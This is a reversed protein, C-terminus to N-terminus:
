KTDRPVFIWLLLYLILTVGSAFLGVVMIVRWIWPEVGTVRSIGGCVGAIWRDENSLRLSNISWDGSGAPEGALLRAKAQDFEAQSIAGRTLLDHLKTIEDATSM